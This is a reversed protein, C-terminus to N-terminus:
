FCCLNFVNCSHVSVDSFIKAECNPYFSSYIIWHIGGLHAACFKILITWIVNVMECNVVWLDTQCSLSLVWLVEGISCIRNNNPFVAPCVQHWGLSLLLLELGPVVWWGCWSEVVERDWHRGEGCGSWSWGGATWRCTKLCCPIHGEEEGKYVQLRCSGTLIRKTSKLETNLSMMRARSCLSSDRSLIVLSLTRLLVLMDRVGSWCCFM